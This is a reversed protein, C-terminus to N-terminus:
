NPRNAGDYYDGHDLSFERNDRSTPTRAHKGISGTSNRDLAVSHAAHHSPASMSSPGPYYDGSDALAAGSFSISAIFAGAIASAIKTM